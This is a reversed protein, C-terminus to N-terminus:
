GKVTTYTGRGALIGRFGGPEDLSFVIIPLRNDRSLAIATADMVGLNKELAEDYSVTEYRKADPFKKPDKDYVGDVKTGKFVAECGMENARLAAATDTTFFPNGTGAAFICVRKKELHRVARRRIYPECVQDMPIASIVRTFVGLAELASQMALANMVTALMGMYDATTREMGQASGALGRFINGGGIVMCIEVGLDHCAKVEQAIRQVTPPHLGFGQDGMLAEGSIKLMVRNYTVGGRAQDAGDNTGM